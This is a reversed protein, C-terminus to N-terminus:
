WANRRRYERCAQKFKSTQRFALEVREGNEMLIYKGIEEVYAMNVIFAKHVRYFDGTHLMQEWASMSQSSEYCDKKTRVICCRDAYEIYLIDRPKIYRTTGSKQLAIRSSGTLEDLADKFAKIMDEEKLPKLLYRFAKVRYGDQMFDGHGTVFIILLEEGRLRLEKATELGDKGKMQVDLFLIDITREYSLLEEGSAFCVVEFDLLCTEKYRLCYLSMEERIVIEDDCIGIRM